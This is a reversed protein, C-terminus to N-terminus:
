RGSKRLEAPATRGALHDVYATVARLDDPDLTRGWGEMRTGAVGKAIVAAVQDPRDGHKWEDDTLNGVPPNAITPALPGDGRGENGHCVACRGLFVDRGRSLIPDGAVEAPAPPASRGFMRFAAFGGAVLVIMFLGVWRAAKPDIASEPAPASAPPIPEDTSM